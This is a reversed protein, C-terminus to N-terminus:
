RVIIAEDILYGNKILKIIIKSNEGIETELIDKDYSDVSVRNDAKGNDDGIFVELVSDSVKKDVQVRLKKGSLRVRLIEPFEGIALVENPGVKGCIVRKVNEDIVSLPLDYLLEVYHMNKKGAIEFLRGELSQLNRNWVTWVCKGKCCFENAMLGRELTPILAKPNMTNFADSNEILVRHTRTLYELAKGKAGGRDQGVANFFARRGGDESDFGFIIVKVEPLLFRMFVLEYASMGRFRGWFPTNWNFQQTLYGDIFQALYETGVHETMVIANPNAKRAERSCRELFEGMAKPSVASRVTGKYHKHAPNYCPYLSAAVDLRYGDAGTEKLVRAMRKSIHEQWGKVYCCANYGHGPALWSRTYKGNKDKRGWEAGHLKGIKSEDSCGIALTYLIIRGGKKHIKGIEEKLAKLGGWRVNYDYDGHCNRTISYQSPVNKRREKTNEWWFAWETMAGVESAGMYKSYIYHKDDKDIFGYSPWVGGHPHESIYDYNDKFWKPLKFRKHFWSRVWRKYHEFGDHWDGHSVGIIGVPLHCTKGTKVEYRLHRVAMAIGPKSNFIEGPDDDSYMQTNHAVPDSKSSNRKNILLNKPMGIKDRVYSFVGGGVVPDFVELLQMNATYGYAHRLRAPLKGCWGTMMPYFYYDDEVKEGIKINELFPCTIGVILKEKGINCLKFSIQIEQSQKALELSMDIKFAYKNAEWSAHVVGKNGDAYGDASILKYESEHVDVGNANIVLLRSSDFIMDSRIYKNFLHTIRLRDLDIECDLYENSLVAKNGAIKGVPEQAVIINEPEHTIPPIPVEQSLRAETRTRGYSIIKLNRIEISALSNKRSDIDFVVPLAEQPMTEINGYTGIKKGDLYFSVTDSRREIRDNAGRKWELRFKYWKNVELGKSASESITNNKGERTTRIFFHNTGDNNLWVVNKAWPQRSMFGMYYYIGKEFNGFRAEFELAAYRYKTKSTVRLTGSSTRRLVLARGSEAICQSNPLKWDNANFVVYRCNGQAEEKLNTESSLVGVNDFVCIGVLLILSLHSKSIM